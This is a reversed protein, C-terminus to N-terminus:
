GFVVDEEGLYCSLLYSWVGQMLTNLTLNNRGVYSRIEAVFSEDLHLYQEEYRGVGKTRDASSAIFPLFGPGELGELYSTWYGAEEYSDIGELYRIYDGYRDEQGMVLSEGSLLREYSQQLETLVIPVSWGDLLLHHFTWLMQYRDASLRILSIRMLPAKDFDFGRQRDSERFSKLASSQEEASLERYDWEEFPLQVAEYVCQIPVNLNEHHFSSRFISHHSVIAEWSQRLLEPRLARFECEFQEIYAEVGQAYLSHFLMGEQLGSLRYLEKAHPYTALFEDLAEYSIEAGLGYDSPTYVSGRKAVELCHEILGELEAVYRRGLEEITQPDFHATSFGWYMQLEGGQVMSNISLKERLPHGKSM